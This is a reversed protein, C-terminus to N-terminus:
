KLHKKVWFYPYGKSNRENLFNILENARLIEVLTGEIVNSNIIESNILDKALNREGFHLKGWNPKREKVNVDFIKENDIVQFTRNQYWGDVCWDDGKIDEAVHIMTLSHTLDTGLGLVLASNKRCFNWSSNEGNPYQDSENGSMMAKAKPGIAVMTNLPHKSRESNSRKIMEKPLVGTWIRTSQVKYTYKISSHDFNIPGSNFKNPYIPIAPMALTGNPGLLNLLKDVMKGPSINFKKLESFSSHVILIDDPKLKKKLFTLIENFNSIKPSKRLKKKLLNKKAWSSPFSYYLRRALMEFHPSISVVKQYFSSNAM